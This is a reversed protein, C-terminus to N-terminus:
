KSFALLVSKEKLTVLLQNRSLSKPLNHFEKLYREKKKDLLLLSDSRKIEGVQNQLLSVSEDISDESEVLGFLALKDIKSIGSGKVADSIQRQCTVRMLLDISRNRALPQKRQWYEEAQIFVSQLHEVGAIMWPNCVVVGEHLRKAFDSLDLAKSLRYGRAFSISQITQRDPRGSKENVVTLGISESQKTM